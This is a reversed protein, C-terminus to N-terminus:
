QKFLDNPLDDISIDQPETEIFDQIEKMGLDSCEILHIKVQSELIGLARSHAGPKGSSAIKYVEKLAEKLKEFSQRMKREDNILLM